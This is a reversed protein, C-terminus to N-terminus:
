NIFPTDAKWTNRFAFISLQNLNRGQAEYHDWVREDLSLSAEPNKKKKLISHNGNFTHFFALPFM